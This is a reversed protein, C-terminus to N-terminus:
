SSCKKSINRMKIKTSMNTFVNSRIRRKKKTSKTNKLSSIFFNKEGEEYDKVEYELDFDTIGGYLNKDFVLLGDQYPKEARITTLAGFMELDNYDIGLKELLNRVSGTPINSGNLIAEAQDSGLIQTTELLGKGEPTKLTLEYQDSRKRIRLASQGNKLAFARTDLYYNTQEFFDEEKLRFLDILYHYEQETLMNRFEIELEQM